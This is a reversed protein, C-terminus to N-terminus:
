KHKKAKAKAENEKARDYDSMASVANDVIVGGTILKRMDRDKTFYNDPDLGMAKCAKFESWISHAEVRAGEKFVPHVGM